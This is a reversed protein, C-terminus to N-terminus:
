GERKTHASLTSLAVFALERSRGAIWSDGSKGYSPACDSANANIKELAEVAVALSSQLERHGDGRMEVAKRLHKRWWFAGRETPHKDGYWLGGISASGDLFAAMQELTYPPPQLHREKDTANAIHPSHTM